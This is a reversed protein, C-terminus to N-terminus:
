KASPARGSLIGAMTRRLFDELAADPVGNVAALRELALAALSHRLDFDRQHTECEEVSAAYAAEDPKMRDFYRGAKSEVWHWRRLKAARSQAEASLELYRQREGELCERWAALYGEPDKHVAAASWEWPLLTKAREELWGFLGPEAQRETATWRDLPTSLLRLARVDQREELFRQLLGRSVREPPDVALWLRYLLPLTIMVLFGIIIVKTIDRFEAKPKLRPM